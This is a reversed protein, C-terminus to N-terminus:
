GIPLLEQAGQVFSRRHLPTLGFRRIAEYHARTGYGKHKAFGYQPHRDGFEVMLRDRTVKAVISAAAVAACCADGDVIVLQTIPVDAAFRGDILVLHPRHPLGEIARRHALRTAQLINLTDIEDVSAQAISVATAVRFIEASLEERVGPPLRKSDDLRAIRVDRPLVVAAAIVPGALPAVGVEDVGAIAAYGLGRYEAEMAFMAELRETERALRVLRRRWIAGLAGVGARPDRLLARLLVADVPLEGLRIRLQQVTLRRLDRSRLPRPPDDM